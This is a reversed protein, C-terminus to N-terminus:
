LMRLQEVEFEDGNRGKDFEGTIEIQRKDDFSQGAPFDKADIDVRIRGTEDEFTYDDGGDHSVIRGRLTAYQDDRGQELLQKVTMVPVSSPGTYQAMAGGSVGLAAALTAAGLLSRITNKNM